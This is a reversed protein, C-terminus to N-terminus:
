SEIEELKVPCCIFTPNLENVNDLTKCTLPHYALLHTCCAASVLSCGGHVVATSVMSTKSSVFSDSPDSSESLMSSSAVSELDERLPRGKKVEGFCVAEARRRAKGEM